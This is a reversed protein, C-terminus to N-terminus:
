AQFQKKCLNFRDQVFSLFCNHNFNGSLDFRAIVQKGSGSTAVLVDDREEMKNIVDRIEFNIQNVQGSLDKIQMMQRQASNALNALKYFKDNDM